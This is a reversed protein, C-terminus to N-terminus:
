HTFRVTIKQGSPLHSGPAPWQQRAVGSGIANIELGSQQASEVASRLPKGLFSPVIVGSDVDLVVTGQPAAQEAPSPPQPPPSAQAIETRPPAQTQPKGSAPPVGAAAGGPAKVGVVRAQPSTQSGANSTADADAMQLPPSLRDSSEDALDEDKASAQLNQRQPNKVDADHPVHMYELVQEAIRKFVPACVQGGQHLGVPSDLIVAITIAPSNVPAFGIFSAVYKTKSYAGTAPDVKQATGTKGAVSYGNLIARRATGFLVVGEMMKKMQAATMTSVVRHQPASHFVVLKPTGDPPLEGAVIRPPTYIGDNAITSLLSITQLPTVGIEQGMSIAGISVKSWRSVPRAMGRTEGPLEIGTQQGFGYDHIYHYLREPGLKMGTKIAAVDSSHALAEAITVVGLSEHDHIKMGFVDISGHQCDVKDDPTVVHQDLAASYTVVKFVSGPEYIDSVARNKLAEAPVSNFVNPNFTPRNALALIEGTRPNEVVVTGAISKTDEMGQQLEREAIYQITQDITLVLNQGPDPPKEVRSFWKGRADLSVLEKGPIGRLDDDFGRELGGLGDGDMGVYGLVQAGLDRKPYFRKPEKRFAIGRLNLQRIRTSTEADIRRAIFVFPRAMKLRVLIDQPDLNLVKGLMAATTEKDHVESPVAFVSDVDISMALPHGYRDYINGRRPEVPVTRTRQREALDEFFGFKVVQLRVLRFGIAFIWVFLLAAFIYLRRSPTRPASARM